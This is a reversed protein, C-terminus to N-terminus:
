FGITVASKWWPYYKSNLEELSPFPYYVVNGNEGIFFGNKVMRYFLNGTLTRIVTKTKKSDKNTLGILCDRLHDINSYPLSEDNGKLPNEALEDLTLETFVIKPVSVPQSLDTIFKVFEVPNLKTAVRPSVPGLQQYLHLQSNNKVSYEGKELGLVRGDDTVLYLNKLKSLPIHELVRYISLYVSRKPAGNSHPVCREKIIGTKFYDSEINTDVEFFLAQGRTRKKSGVALYKGFDEPPLMSAILAEPTLSLYLYKQDM